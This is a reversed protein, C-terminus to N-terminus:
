LEAQATAILAAVRPRDGLEHALLLAPKALFLERRDGARDIAEALDDYVQELDPLTLTRASYVSAWGM